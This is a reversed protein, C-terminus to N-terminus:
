SGLLYGWGGMTDSSGDVPFSHGTVSEEVYPLLGCVKKRRNAAPAPTTSGHLAHMIANWARHTLARSTYSM